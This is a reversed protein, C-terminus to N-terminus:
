HKVFKRVGLENRQNDFVKLLYVGSSLQSVDLVTRTHMNKEMILRGSFDHVQLWQTPSNNNQLHIHLQNNAPNPYVALHESVNTVEEVSVPDVEADFVPHMMLAGQETLSTKLWTGSTNYFINNRADSNSDFGINLEEAGEQRIGIYITADQNLTVPEELFYRAFVDRGDFYTPSNTGTNTAIEIANNTFEEIDSWVVLSFQNNSVDSNMPIFSIDIATLQTGGEPVIIDFKYALQSEFGFLGYAKEATGDDYSYYDAFYHKRKIVNNSTVNDNASSLAISSELTIQSVNREKELLDIAFPIEENDPTQNLNYSRNELSEPAINKNGPGISNFIVEDTCINTISYTGTFGRDEISLNRFALSQETNLVATYFDAQQMSQYLHTWPMSQYTQLLSPLPNVVTIDDKEGFLSQDDLRIYDLHWHDNNGSATATNRFRFQFGNYFLAEDGIDLNVEEFPIAFGLSGDPNEVWSSNNPGATRWMERWITDEYIIPKNQYFTDITIVLNNLTDVYITDENETFVIFSPNDFPIINDHTIDITSTDNQLVDLYELQLIDIQTSDVFSTDIEEPVRFELILEDEENPFDGFGQPQYFFNFFLSDTLQSNAEMADAICFPQSTLTDAPGNLLGNGPIHPDGQANLGDLTAVGFSPPDYGYNRNIYAHQDEWVNPDPQYLSTSFDEVFTEEITLYPEKELDFIYYSFCPLGESVSTKEVYYTGTDLSDTTILGVLRKALTGTRDFVETISLSPGSSKNVSITAQTSCFEKTFSYESQDVAEADANNLAVNVNATRGFEDSLTIFYAGATLNDLQYQNNGIATLEEILLGNVTLVNESGTIMISDPEGQEITLLISGDSELCSPFTLVELNIKPLLVECSNDAKQTGSKELTSQQAQLIPNYPLPRLAEQGLLDKIQLTFIFTLLFISFLKRMKHQTNIATM